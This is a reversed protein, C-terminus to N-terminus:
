PGQAAGLVVAIRVHGEADVLRGRGGLGGQTLFRRPPPPPLPRRRAQSRRPILVKRAAGAEQEATSEAPPLLCMWVHCGVPHFHRKISPTPPCSFPCPGSPFGLNADGVIAGWPELMSATKEPNGGYLVGSSWM